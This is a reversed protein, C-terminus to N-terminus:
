VELGSIEKFKAADFNKLKKVADIFSKPAAKFAEKYEIKKLYGGCTKYTPNATKEDNTMDSEEIWKNVWFWSLDLNNISNYEQESCLIDFLMWQRKTCFSNLIGDGSNRYGSNGDGSNWNGSNRNGSNWNGSNNGFLNRLFLIDKDKFFTDLSEQVKTTDDKHLEGDITLKKDKPNYEWKNWTDEEKGKIGLSHMLSTHSNWEYKEPNGAAMISVIKEPTFFEVRGKGDSVASFFKCM